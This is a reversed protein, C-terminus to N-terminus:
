VVVQLRRGLIRLVHQQEETLHLVIPWQGAQCRWHIGVFDHWVWRATPHRIRRGKHDPFIVAHANLAHRIRYELAAYVLWCVTMVMFLAMSREPKKLSRSSGLVSPHNM